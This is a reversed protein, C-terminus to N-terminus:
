RGRISGILERSVLPRSIFHDITERLVLRATRLVGPKLFDGQGADLLQQGSWVGKESISFGAGVEYDYYCQRAIPHGASDTQWQVGYGARLLLQQEFVRLWVDARQGSKLHTIAQQYLDFLADAPEERPLLQLLLEDLYLACVLAEDTLEAPAFFEIVKFRPLSQSYAFDANFLQHMDPTAAKGNAVGKSNFTGHVIGSDRTFVDALWDTEGLPQRRLLWCQKM